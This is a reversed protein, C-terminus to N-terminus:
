GGDLIIKLRIESSSLASQWEILHLQWIKHNYKDKFHILRWIWVLFKGIIYVNNLYDYFQKKEIM